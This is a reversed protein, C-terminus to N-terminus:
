PKGKGDIRSLGLLASDCEPNLALLKQWALRAGVRDGALESAQALIEWAVTFQPDKELIERAAAIAEKVRGSVALIRAQEYRPWLRWPDSVQSERSLTRLAVDYNGLVADLM